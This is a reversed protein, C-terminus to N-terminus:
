ECFAAKYKLIFIYLHFKSFIYNFFVLSLFKNFFNDGIRTALDTSNSGEGRKRKVPLLGYEATEVTLFVQYTEPIKRKLVEALARFCPFGSQCPSVFFKIPVQM